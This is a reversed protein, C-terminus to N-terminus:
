LAFGGFWCCYFLGMLLLLGVSADFAVLGAVLLCCLLVVGLCRWLIGM